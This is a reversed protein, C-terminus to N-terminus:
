VLLDNDDEPSTQPITKETKSKMLDLFIMLALQERERLKEFYADEFLSVAHQELRKPDIYFSIEDIYKEWSVSKEYNTMAQNIADELICSLFSIIGRDRQSLEDVYNRCKQESGWSMWANLIPLLKPHEDLSGHKAWYEIRLVCLKKLSGLQSTTLDRCDAPMYTDEDQSHERAQEQLEHTLIFISKTANAIAAQMIEFRQDPSNIRQLLDHVIRHIHMPTDLSLPGNIGEPFLDGNDLLAAIINSINSKPIDQIHKRDFLDLFKIIKNDQNLRTLAHDFEERESAISLVTKFESIPMQSSPMYLRFYAEFLDPSCVRKEKRATASSYHLHTHPQYIQRVRPFLRMVLELLMDHSSTEDRSLIEDCRAKEKELEIKSTLYVSDMLDTFLDKNDRIGAYVKPLFIEIATLAFFDVPNVTDRVRPYSFSLTNIYRTIDRCNEFFYKLAGYYIEAWYENHWTGQPVLHLVSSIRDALIAEVDQHAIPPIEFPLQVIKEILEETGMGEMMNLKDIIYEKNMSLLYSTKNYNGMSKVIQFIEKIEYDYLRAINDIIIIIKCSEQSLLENLEAKVLTLDRGSEWGQMPKSKRFTLKEWLTRERLVEPPAKGTFYSVYLELLFLIREKNKLHESDRLVASLRRFFSEIMKRQGSYSWPSFSLIIPQEEEILSSSAVQLEELVLNIISTKGVGWDGYLGVVLSQPDQHDILCRALYKAFETRGLRDESSNQIPRDADFM